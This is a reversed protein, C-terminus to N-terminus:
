LMKKPMFAVYTVKISLYRFLRATFYSHSNFVTKDRTYCTSIYSVFIYIVQARGIDFSCLDGLIVISKSDKCTKGDQKVALGTPCVCEYGSTKAM